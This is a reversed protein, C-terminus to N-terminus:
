PTTIGYGERNYYDKAKENIYAVPGLELIVPVEDNHLQEITRFVEHCHNASKIVVKYLGVYEPEEVLRNDWNYLADAKMINVCIASKEELLKKAIKRLNEETGTVLFIRLNREM